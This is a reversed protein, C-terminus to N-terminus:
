RLDVAGLTPSVSNNRTTAFAVAVGGLVALGLGAWLWVHGRSPADEQDRPPVSAAARNRRSSVILAVGDDEDAADVRPSPHTSAPSASVSQAPMPRAPMPRAPMPLPAAPDRSGDALVATQPEAGPQAQPKGPGGVLAELEAMHREVEPRRPSDPAAALFDRFNDLAHQHEDLKRYCVAINLLFGPNRTLVYGGQFESLAERFRGAQFAQQGAEFRLKAEEVDESTPAPAAWASAAGWSAAAMWAALALGRCMKATQATCFGAFSRM